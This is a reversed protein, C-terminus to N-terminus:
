DLYYYNHFLYSHNHLWFLWCFLFRKLKREGLFGEEANRGFNPHEGLQTRSSIRFIRPLAKRLYRVLNWFSSDAIHAFFFEKFFSERIVIALMREILWSSQFFRQVVCFYMAFSRKTEVFSYGRDFVTLSLKLLSINVWILTKHSLSCSIDSDPFCFRSSIKVCGHLNFM